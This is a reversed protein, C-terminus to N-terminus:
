GFDLTVERENLGNPNFTNLQYQWFCEKRRVSQENEAQDILTVAWDAKGNHDPLSFHAHFSEQPSSGKSNYLKNHSKYNNFRKRFPTIASGVYQLKCTKCQILYVVMSSSCNLSGARINYTKLSDKDSFTSDCVIYNCVDCNSRLCKESKGAETTLAPLKARVLISKLNKGNRFGVIPINSFVDRHEQDPTLLLHIDSLVKKIKAFSPHYTINLTLKREKDGGPPKDLLANRDFKRAELIKRRVLKANYGREM